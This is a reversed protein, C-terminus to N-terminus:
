MGFCLFVFSGVGSVMWCCSSLVKRLFGSAVSIVGGPADREFSKSFVSPVLKVCISRLARCCFSGLSKMSSRSIASFM